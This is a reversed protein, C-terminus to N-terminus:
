QKGSNDRKDIAERATEPLSNYMAELQKPQTIMREAIFNVLDFLTGVTAAEDKLNIQGPHVANNGIVRVVDLAQQVQRPLGKEVLNGIDTDINKGEEGLHSCLKQICLRLLAAAGRPSRSSIKRAEEYDEIIEPPIDANPPPGGAVDPYIM